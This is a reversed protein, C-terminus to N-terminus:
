GQPILDEDPEDLCFLSGDQLQIGIGKKKYSWEKESFGPSFVGEEILFVIRGSKGGYLVDDGVVIPKGNEYNM